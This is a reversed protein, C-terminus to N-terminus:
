LQLRWGWSDRGHAALQCSSCCAAWLSLLCWRNLSAPVASVADLSVQCHLHRGPQAAACSVRRKNGDRKRCRM